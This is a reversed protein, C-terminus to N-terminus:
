IKIVTSYNSLNVSGRLTKRQLNKKFINAMLLNTKKISEKKAEEKKQVVEPLSKYIKESHKKMERESIFKPAIKKRRIEMGLDEALRRLDTESFSTLSPRQDLQASLLQRQVARQNARTESIRKLSEQRHSSKQVFDPHNIELYEKVTYINNKKMCNDMSSMEWENPLSGSRLVKPDDKPGSHPLTKEIKTYIEKFPANEYQRRKPPVKVVINRLAKPENHVMAEESIMSDSTQIILNYALCKKKIKDASSKSRHCRQGKCPCHHTRKCQDCTVSTSSSTECKKLGHCKCRKQHYKECERKIKNLVKCTASESSTSPIETTAQIDSSEYYNKRCNSTGMSSQVAKDEKSPPEIEVKEKDQLQRRSSREEINKSCECPTNVKDTAFVHEDETKTLEDSDSKVRKSRLLIKERQKVNKSNDGDTDRASSSDSIKLPDHDTGDETNLLYNLVNMIERYCKKRKIKDIDKKTYRKTIDNIIDMIPDDSSSKRSQAESSSDKLENSKSTNSKVSSAKSGKSYKRTVNEPSIYDNKEISDTQAINTSVFRGTDTNSRMFPKPSIRVSKPYTHRNIINDATCAKFVFPESPEYIRPSEKLSKQISNQFEKGINAFIDIDHSQVGKSCEEPLCTAKETVETKDTGVGHTKVDNTTSGIRVMLTMNTGQIPIKFNDTSYHDVNPLDVTHSIIENNNLELVSQIEKNSNKAAVINQDNQIHTSKESTKIDHHVNKQPEAETSAHKIESTLKVCEQDCLMNVDTLSPDPIRPNISIETQCCRTVEKTSNQSRINKTFPSVERMKRETSTSPSNRESFIGLPINTQSSKSNKTLDAKNKFSDGHFTQSLKGDDLMKSTSPRCKIEARPSSQQSGMCQIGITNSTSDVLQVARNTLGSCKYILMKEPVDETVSSIKSCLCVYKIDGTLDDPVVHAVNEFPEKNHSCMDHHSKNEITHENSRINVQVSSDVVGVKSPVFNHQCCCHKDEPGHSTKTHKMENQLRKKLNSKRHDDSNGSSLTFVSHSRQKRLGDLRQIDLNSTSGGELKSADGSGDDYNNRTLDKILDKLRNNVKVDSQQTVKFAKESSVLKQKLFLEKDKLHQKYAEERRLAEVYKLYLEESSTKAFVTESSNKGGSSVDSETNSTMQHLPSRKVPKESSSVIPLNPASQSTSALVNSNFKDLRLISKKPRHIKPKLDTNNSDSTSTTLCGEGLNLKKSSFTLGSLFETTSDDDRYKSKLLRQVVEKVLKNKLESDNHHKQLAVKLLDISKELDKSFSHKSSKSSETTHAGSSELSSKNDTNNPSASEFNRQNQNYVHGPMYEFSEAASVQETSKEQIPINEKDVDLKIKNRLKRRALKRNRRRYRKKLTNYSMLVPNKKGDIHEPKSLNTVSSNEKSKKSSSQIENDTKSSQVAEDEILNEKPSININNSINGVSVGGDKDMNFSIHKTLNVNISQSPNAESYKPMNVEVIEVDKQYIKTSKKTAGKKTKSKVNIDAPTSHATPPGIETDNKTDNNSYQQKLALRELTSLSSASGKRDNENAYGVDALSDWELKRQSTISSTPSFPKNISTDLLADMSKHSQTDENVFEDDTHRSEVDTIIPPSETDSKPKSNEDQSDCPDPISCKISIRCLETSSESKKDGSDSSDQSKMKRWFVGSVDRMESDATSLSFYQELDRKRGFKKYYDLISSNVAAASAEDVASLNMDEPESCEM